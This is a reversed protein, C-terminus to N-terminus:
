CMRMIFMAGCLALIGIEVFSIILLVVISRFM